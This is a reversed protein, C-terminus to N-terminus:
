KSGTGRHDRGTPRTLWAQLFMTAGDEDTHDSLVIGLRRGGLLRALRKKRDGLPMGRLTATPYKTPPTGPAIAPQAAIAVGASSIM